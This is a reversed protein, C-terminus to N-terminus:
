TMWTRPLPTPSLLAILPLLVKRLDFSDQALLRAFLLADRILSVGGTDPMLARAPDLFRAADPAAFIVNAMAGCGGGTGTRSLMQCIDGHMRTRDAFVLDDDRSIDVRDSFRADRLVEGMAARGFVLPEVVLLRATGQLTVNLRRSLDAGEFLITEQPLWDLRAGHEVVLRNDLRGREGPQARYAREAAQTTMVLHAEARCTASVTFRDGGTIGGATNLMVATMAPGASRPFLLKSSGSQHLDRLVSADGRRACEVLARGRARPQLSNQLLATDAHM